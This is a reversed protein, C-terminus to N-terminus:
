VDTADAFISVKSRMHEYIAKTLDEGRTKETPEKAIAELFDVGRIQVQIVDLPVAANETGFLNAVEASPFCALQVVITGTVDVQQSIWRWVTDSIELKHPTTYKAAVLLM